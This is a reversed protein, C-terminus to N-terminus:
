FVDEDNDDATGLIGAFDAQASGRSGGFREGDKTKLVANLGCTVGKSVGNDYAFFAVSAYGYCGSYFEDRSIIEDLNADVIGPKQSSKANIFMSNEYCEDDKEADGDRLPTKVVKPLKGGWKALGAQKAAEIATKIKALTAKDSKPIILSVSYKKDGGDDSTAAPEFVHAYSFRVKGTIVKLPNTNAM